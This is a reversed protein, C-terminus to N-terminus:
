SRRTALGAVVTIPEVPQAARAVISDAQANSAGRAPAATVPSRPFEVTFTSGQGAGPGEAQIRTGHRELHLGSARSSAERGM